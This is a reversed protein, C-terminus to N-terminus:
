LDHFSSRKYTIPIPTDKMHIYGFGVYYATLMYLHFNSDTKVASRRFAELRQNERMCKDM